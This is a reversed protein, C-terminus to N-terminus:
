LKGPLNEPIPPHPPRPPSGPIDAPGPLQHAPHVVGMTIIIRMAEEVSLPLPILEERPVYVVYGTFPTPSTPVYVCVMHKRLTDNLARLGEGTVFAISYMGQTPFPVAVAHKFDMKKEESFFFETFQRAYPYITGVLPIKKLLREFLGYISRGVFTALLFGLILTLVLACAFGFIPAGWEFFWAHEPEAPTWGAVRSMGWQAANGIPIGVNTWLFGLVFAVVVGTLALPLLAFFGRVFFRKM